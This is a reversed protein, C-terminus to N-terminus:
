ERLFNRIFINLYLRLLFDLNIIATQM